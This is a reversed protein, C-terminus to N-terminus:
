PKQVKLMCHAHSARVANIAIVTCQGSFARPQAREDSGITAWAAVLGTEVSNLVHEGGGAM